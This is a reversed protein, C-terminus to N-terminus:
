RTRQCYGIPKPPKPQPTDINEYRLVNSEGFQRLVAAKMTQPLSTRRSQENTSEQLTATSM